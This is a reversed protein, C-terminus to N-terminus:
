KTTDINKQQIDQQEFMYKKIEERKAEINEEGRKVIDDIFKAQMEGKEKLTTKKLELIKLDERIARVREKVINNM